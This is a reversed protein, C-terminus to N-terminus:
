PSEAIEIAQRKVAARGVVAADVLKRRLVAYPVSMASFYDAAGTLSRRQRAQMVHENFGSFYPNTIKDL